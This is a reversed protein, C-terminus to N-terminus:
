ALLWAVVRRVAADAAARHNQRWEERARSGVTNAVGLVAVFPVGWQAAATAVGHAELHEVQAGSAAAIRQAVADDVTVALTTAVDALVAGGSAVGARLSPDSECGISMPDPFQATGHVVAADVLRVRRAVVVDGVALGAGPYTGCTGVLVVAQPKEEGIRVTAGVSAHPLGIGVASAAVARSGIRGRMADGLLPRLPALEPYFAGLVLVSQIANAPLTPQMPQMPQM